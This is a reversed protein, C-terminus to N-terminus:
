VPKFDKCNLAVSCTGCTSKCSVMKTVKYAGAKKSGDRAVLKAESLSSLAYAATRESYGLELAIDKLQKGIKKSEKISWFVEQAKQPLAVLRQRAEENLDTSKKALEVARKERIEQRAKFAAKRAAEDEGNGKRCKKQLNDEKKDEVGSADEQEATEETVFVFDRSGYQYLANQYLWMKNETSMHQRTPSNYCFGTDLGVVGIKGLAEPHKQGLDEALKLAVDSIKDSVALFLFDTRGLYEVIDDELYPVSFDKKFKKVMMGVTLCADQQLCHYAPLVFLVADITSGKCKNFRFRELIKYTVYRDRREEEREMIFDINLRESIPPLKPYALRCLHCVFALMKKQSLLKLICETKKEYREKYDM